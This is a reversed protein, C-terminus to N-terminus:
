WGRSRPKHTTGARNEQNHTSERLHDLNKVGVAATTDAPLVYEGKSLLAPVDDATATTGQHVNGGDRYDVEGGDQFGLAKKAREILSPKEPAPSSAPPPPSAPPTPAGLSKAEADALQQDRRPGAGSYFPPKDAM